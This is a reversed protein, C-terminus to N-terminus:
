TPIDTVSLRRSSSVLGCINACQPLEEVENVRGGQDSAMGILVIIMSPPM